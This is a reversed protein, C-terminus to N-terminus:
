KNMLGQGKIEILNMNTEQMSMCSNKRPTKFTLALLAAAIFCIAGILFATSYSGQLDYIVGGLITGTAGGLMCCATAIAILSALSKPGYYSGILGPILPVRIGQFLGYGVAFAWLMGMSEIQRLWLMMIGSVITCFVLGQKWGVIRPTMAGGGIRGIISIGGTLGLAFAAVAETTLKQEMFIYRVLHTDVMNGAVVLLFFYLCIGPFAWTKMAEKVTWSQTERRHSSESAKEGQPSKRAGYPRQGKKEPSDVITLTALFLLLMTLSGLVLYAMRWGYDQILLGALPAYVFRGGGMGATVLGLALGRKETFWKQVVSTPIPLILAGGVASITYLLYFHWLSEAQSLLAIAPGVLLTASILLTRSGYRDVVWGGFLTAIITVAMMVPPISSIVTASWHFERELETFFVGFAFITGFSLTALFCGLIVVWGYFFGPKDNKDVSYEYPKALHQEKM